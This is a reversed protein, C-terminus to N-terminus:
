DEGDRRVHLITGRGVPRADDLAASWAPDSGRGGCLAASPAQGVRARLEVSAEFGRVGELVDFEAAATIAARNAFVTATCADRPDPAADEERAITVAFGLWGGGEVETCCGFTSWGDRLVVPESRLVVGDAGPLRFLRVEQAECSLGATRVPGCADQAGAGGAPVLTAAVALAAAARIM